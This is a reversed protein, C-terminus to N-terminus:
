LNSSKPLRDTLFGDSYCNATKSGGISWFIKSVNLDLWLRLDKRSYHNYFQLAANVRGSLFHMQENHVCAWHRYDASSCAKNGRETPWEDM